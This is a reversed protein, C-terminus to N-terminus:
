LGKIRGMGGRIDRRRARQPTSFYRVPKKLQGAIYMLDAASIETRGTEMDSLNKQSKQISGALEAQTLGSRLREEAIKERIQRNAEDEEKPRNFM